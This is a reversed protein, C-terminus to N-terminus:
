AECALNCLDLVPKSAVQSIADVKIMPPHCPKVGTQMLEASLDVTQQVLV